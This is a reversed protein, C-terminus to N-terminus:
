ASVPIPNDTRARVALTTCRLGYLYNVKKIVTVTLRRKSSTHRHVEVLFDAYASALEASTSAANIRRAIVLLTDIDTCEDAISDGDGGYERLHDRARAIQIVITKPNQKRRLKALRRMYSCSNCACTPGHAAGRLAHLLDEM